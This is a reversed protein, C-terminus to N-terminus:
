HNPRADDHDDTDGQRGRHAKCGQDMQVDGSILMVGGAHGVLVARHHVSMERSM